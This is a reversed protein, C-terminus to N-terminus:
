QREKLIAQSLQHVVLAYLPSHNYRTITYFNNFGFWYEKGDEQEFELLTAKQPAPNLSSSFGLSGYYAMDKSPKVSQKPISSGPKIVDAQAAVPQGFKWRHEKMYNAVSAIADEPSNLLDRTGGDDYSRAYARYSSPMFQCFGMAGAYSGYVEDINLNEESTLLLFHELESRFFRSRKPYAFALTFLADLVKYDGMIKGYYTEVGIIGVIVYPDVSTRTSIENLENEYKSWFDLGAQIREESMFIKRYRYWPMGEAPRNMKEIITPQFTASQLIERVQEESKNNLKSFNIVFEEVLNEDIGQQAQLQITGVLYLCVLLVLGQIKNM